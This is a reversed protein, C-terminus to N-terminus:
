CTSDTEIYFSGFPIVYMVEDGEQLVKGVIDYHLCEYCNGNAGKLDIAYDEFGWDDTEIPIADHVQELLQSITSSESEINWVIPTEPLGHRRITLYLRM